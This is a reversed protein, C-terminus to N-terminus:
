SSLQLEATKSIPYNFIKFVISRKRLGRRSFSFDCLSSIISFFSFPACFIKYCAVDKMLHSRLNIIIIERGNVALFM